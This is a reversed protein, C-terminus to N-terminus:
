NRKVEAHNEKERDSDQTKVTATAEAPIRFRVLAKRLAEATIYDGEEVDLLRQFSAEAAKSMASKAAQQMEEKEAQRARKARSLRSNPQQVEPAFIGPVEKARDRSTTAEARSRQDRGSTCEDEDESLEIDLKGLESM